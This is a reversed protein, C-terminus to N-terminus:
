RLLNCHPELEDCVGFVFKVFSSFPVDSVRIGLRQDDRVQFIPIKQFFFNM